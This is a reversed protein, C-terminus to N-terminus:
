EWHAGSKDTPLGHDHDVDALGDNQRARDTITCTLSAPLREGRAASADPIAVPRNSISQRRKSTARQSAIDDACPQHHQDDPAAKAVFSCLYSTRFRSPITKCDNAHSEHVRNECEVQLSPQATDALKALLHRVLLNCVLSSM